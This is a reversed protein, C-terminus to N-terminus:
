LKGRGIPVYQCSFEFPKEEQTPVLHIYYKKDNVVQAVQIIKDVDCQSDKHHAQWDLIQKLAKVKAKSESNAVVFVNKHLETFENKDYGGLNVFYLKDEQNQAPETKLHVEYGDAYHLAGWADIHLSEPTGWWTNKLEAYTDEIKDAVIFKMDHLEILSQTTSGGIFIVYLKM